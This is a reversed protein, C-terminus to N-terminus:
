YGWVQGYLGAASAQWKLGETPKFPVEIPIPNHPLVDMTPVIPGAASDTVLITITEDTPNSFYMGMIYLSETSKATLATEVEVFGTDFTPAEPTELPWPM